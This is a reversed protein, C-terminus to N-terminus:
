LCIKYYYYYYYYYYYHRVRKMMDSKQFLGEIIDNSVFLISLFFLFCFICHSTIFLIAWPIESRFWPIFDDRDQTISRTIKTRKLFLRLRVSLFSCFWMKREIKRQWANNEFEKRLNKPQLDLPWTFM